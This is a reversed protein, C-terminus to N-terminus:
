SGLKAHVDAALVPSDGNEIYAILYQLYFRAKKLEQVTNDKGGNRDLYKRIQLELAAKFREPARLTPIKSMADIWQMEDIYNKYHTPDVAKSIKPQMMLQGLTLKNSSYEEKVHFGDVEELANYPKHETIEPKWSAERELSTRWGFLETQNLLNTTVSNKINDFVEVRFNEYGKVYAEVEVFNTTIDRRVGHLYVAYTYKM